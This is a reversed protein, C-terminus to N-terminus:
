KNEVEPKNNCSTIYIHGFAFIIGFVLLLWHHLFFGRLIFIGSPLIALWLATKLSPRRFYLGWCIFYALLMLACLATWVILTAVSSFGFEWVLLPFVMLTMSGYRGIQELVIVPRSPCKNEMNRNRLTFLINPIMMLTIILFGTLNLWGFQM